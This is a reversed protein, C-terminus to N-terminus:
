LEPILYLVGDEYSDLAAYQDETMVKFLDSKLKTKTTEYSDSIATDTEDKTYTDAKAAYTESASTREDELVENLKPASIVANARADDKGSAIYVGGLLAEAASALGLGSESQTFSDTTQVGLFYTKTSLTTTDVGPATANSWGDVGTSAGMFKLAGGLLLNIAHQGEKDGTETITGSELLYPEQAIYQMAKGAKVVGYETETAKSVSIAGGATLGICATDVVGSYSLKVAGAAESTAFDVYLRKDSGVHVFGGSASTSSGSPLVTGALTYDAIAVALGGDANVGVPAGNDIVISTGLKTLGYTDIDAIEGALNVQTWGAPELWAYIDFSDGNRVYYYYGGNCTEGSQPIDEYSEVLIREISRSDLGDKGQAKVSTQVYSKDADSWTMWYGNAGIYPSHGDDAVAREGTDVWVGAKEDWRLWTGHTSIKPSVGPDGTVQSDTVIGGIKWTNTPKNVTVAENIKGDFTKLAENVEGLLKVQVDETVRKAGAEARDAEKEARNAEEKALKYMKEGEKSWAWVAKRRQGDIYVMLAREEEEVEGSMVARPEMWTVYGDILRTSGGEEGVVDVVFVYSGSERAPFSVEIEGELTVFCELAEIEIDEKIDRLSGVATVVGFNWTEGKEIVPKITLVDGRGADLEYNVNKGRM